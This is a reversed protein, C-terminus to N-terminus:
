ECGLEDVDPPVEMGMGLQGALLRARGLGHGAAEIGRADTHAQQGAGAQEGVDPGGVGLVADRQAGVHVGQGTRSRVPRSKAERM